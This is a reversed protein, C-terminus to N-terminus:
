KLRELETRLRELQYKLDALKVELKGVGEIERSIESVYGPPRAFEADLALLYDEVRKLSEQLLSLSETRLKELENLTAFGDRIMSLTTKLWAMTDLITRYRDLKIFLPAVAPKPKEPKEVKPEEIVEEPPKTEPPVEEAPKPPAEAPKAEVKPKKGKKRGFIVM